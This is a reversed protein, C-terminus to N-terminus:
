AKLATRQRTVASLLGRARCHKQRERILRFSAKWWWARDYFRSYETAVSGRLIEDKRAGHTPLYQEGASNDASKIMILVWASYLLAVARIENVFPLKVGKEIQKIVVTDCGRRERRGRKGECLVKMIDSGRKVARSELQLASVFPEAPVCPAPRRSVNGSTIQTRLSWCGRGRGCPM